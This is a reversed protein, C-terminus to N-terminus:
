QDTDAARSNGCRYRPTTDNDRNNTKPSRRPRMNNPMARGTSEQHQPLVPQDAAHYPETVMHRSLMRALVM